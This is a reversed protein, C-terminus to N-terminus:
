GSRLVDIKIDGVNRAIEVKLREILVEQLGEKLLGSCMSLETEPYSKYGFNLNCDMSTNTYISKLGITNQPDDLYVKVQCKNFNYGEIRYFVNFDGSKTFTARDCKELHSFFCIEDKCPSYYVFSSYILFLIILSFVASVLILSSTIKRKLSPLRIMTLYGM